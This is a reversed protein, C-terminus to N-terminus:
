VFCVYGMLRSMGIQTCAKTSNRREVAEQVKEHVESFQM